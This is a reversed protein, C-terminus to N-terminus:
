NVLGTERVKVIGALVLDTTMPAPPLFKFGIMSDVPVLILMPLYSPEESSSSVASSSTVISPSMSPTASALCLMKSITSSSVLYKVALTTTGSPRAGNTLDKFELDSFTVTSPGFLFLTMLMEPKFSSTKSLCASILLEKSVKSILILVSVLTIGGFYWWNMSAGLNNLSKSVTTTKGVESSSAVTENTPKGALVSFAMLNALSAEALTAKSEKSM